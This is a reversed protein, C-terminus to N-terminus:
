HWMGCITDEACGTYATASAAYNRHLALYLAYYSLAEYLPNYKRYATCVQPEFPQTYLNEKVDAAAWCTM